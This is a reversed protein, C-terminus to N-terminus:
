GPLLSVAAWALAAATADEALAAPWDPLGRESVARRWRAGAQAGAFAASAGIALAAPLPLAPRGPRGGRSTLAAAAFAGLALRSILAAPSLRSPTAPLKDGVLEGLAAVGTLATARRGALLSGPRAASARDTTLAVAAVGLQSRLGSVVGILGAGALANVVGGSGGPCLGQADM